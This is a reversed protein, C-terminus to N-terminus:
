PELVSLALGVTPLLLPAYTNPSECANMKKRGVGNPRKPKMQKGLLVGADNYASKFLSLAWFNFIGFLRSVFVTDQKM